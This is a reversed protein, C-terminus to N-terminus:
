QLLHLTIDNLAFISLSKCHVDTFVVNYRWDDTDDSGHGGAQSIM